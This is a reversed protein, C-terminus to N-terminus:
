TKHTAVGAKRGAKELYKQRIKKRQERSAVTEEHKKRM